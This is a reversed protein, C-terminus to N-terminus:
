SAMPNRAPSFTRSAPSSRFSQGLGVGLVAMCVIAYGPVQLPFDVLTHLGGILGVTAAVLPIANNRRRILAGRFLLAVVVLYAGCILTAAPLGIEAALEIPTSHAFEWRGWISDSAGRYLPFVTQFTGFGTGLIPHDLIMRWTARYVDFRGEDNFGQTDFRHSAVSTLLLAVAVLGLTALIKWRTALDRVTKRFIVVSALGMAMVSTIVGARSNTMALALFCVAFGLLRISNEKRSLELLIAQGRTSWRSTGHLVAEVPECLLLWWVAACSGFFTAATNRNIFTGLVVGIFDTRERWLILTPETITSVIGYLAYAVGSYAVCTLLKRARKANAGYLVGLLMVELDLLLPSLGAFPSSRGADVSIESRLGLPYSIPGRHIQAVAVFGASLVILLIGASLVVQSRSLNKPAVILCCATITCGLLVLRLDLSGFPLPALCVITM